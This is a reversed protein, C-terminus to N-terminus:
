GVSAACCNAPAGVVFVYPAHSRGIIVRGEVRVVTSWCCPYVDIPGFFPHRHGLVDHTLYWALGAAVSTQAILWVTRRLRRKAALAVHAARATLSASM